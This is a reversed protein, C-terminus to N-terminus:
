VGHVADLRESKIAKQLAAHDKATQSGYSEAWQALAEDIEPTEGCYGAIVAADGSRAHARALLAGFGFAFFEFADSELLSM